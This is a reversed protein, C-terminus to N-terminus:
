TRVPRRVPAGNQQQWATASAAAAAKGQDLRHRIMEGPTMEAERLWHRTAAFV